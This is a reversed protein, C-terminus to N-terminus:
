SIMEVKTTQCRETRIHFYDSFVASQQVLIGCSSHGAVWSSCATYFELSILKQKTNLKQKLSIPIPAVSGPSM